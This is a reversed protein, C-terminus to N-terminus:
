PMGSVNTTSPAPLTTWLCTPGTVRSLRACLIMGAISAARPFRHHPWAQGRKGEPPGDLHSGSLFGADARDPVANRENQIIPARGSGKHM